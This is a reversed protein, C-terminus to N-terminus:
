YLVKTLYLGEAAAVFHTKKKGKSTLLMEIWAADARHQACRVLSGTLLRVMKYLFGEGRFRLV